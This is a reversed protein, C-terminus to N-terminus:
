LRAGYLPQCKVNGFDTNQFRKSACQSIQHWLSACHLMAMYAREIFDKVLM